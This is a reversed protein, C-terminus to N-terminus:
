GLLPLYRERIVNLHHQQHGAIVFGLALVSINIGAALGTRHLMEDSFNEFLIINSNRVMVLENILDKVTRESSNTNAALLNEDYGPLDTSDNRAFRLARYAQIRENDIIHQLIDRITWKGEAYTKDKLQELPGSDLSTLQLLSERLCNIIEENEAQTIYREFFKPRFKLDSKKM